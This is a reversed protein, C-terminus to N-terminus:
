SGSTVWPRTGVAGATFIVPTAAFVNQGVPQSTFLPPTAGLVYSVQDVWAADQGATLSADKTYNWQLAQPGTTLYYTQHQWDVEGSIQTTNTFTNGSSVFSLIDANTQSSVKWWFTLTGPGNTATLLATRQNDGIFYSRGSAVGDHSVGTQGYWPINTDVSNWLLNSNNLAFPL